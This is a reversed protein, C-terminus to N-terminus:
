RKVDKNMRDLDHIITVSEDQLAQPVGGHSVAGWPVRVVAEGYDLSRKIQVDISYPSLKRIYGHAYEIGGTVPVEVTVFDGVHWDTM